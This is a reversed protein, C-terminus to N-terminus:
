SEAIQSELRKLDKEFLTVSVEERKGLVHTLAERLSLTTPQLPNKGYRMLYAIVVTPSRSRGADCHVLVNKGALLRAHIWELTANIGEGDFLSIYAEAMDELPFLRYDASEDIGADELISSVGDPRRPLVSLVCNVQRETLASPQVVWDLSGLLLVGHPKPKPKEEAEADEPIIASLSQGM